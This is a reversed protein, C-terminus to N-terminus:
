TTRIRRNIRVAGSYKRFYYILLTVVALIGAFWFIIDEPRQTRYIETAINGIIIWQFVYALTVNQGIWEIYMVPINNQFKRKLSGALLSFGSLFFVAWLYYEIGHHYYTSLDAAIKIGYDITLIILVSWILLFLVRLRNNVLHHYKNKLYYFGAGTLPYALWPFVPFYSWKYNGRFFADVYVLFGEPQALQDLYVGSAAAALASIFYLYFSSKYLRQLGAIIMLSIGALPLIDAGFIYQLPQIQHDSIGVFYSFLLNFNLAINLLIGGAFLKIGRVFLQKSSKSRSVLFYGMIMMFLPAAPPGGLFLSISGFTSNFFEEILFLETLHVQIMLIVAIGKLLDATGSRNEKFFYNEPGM